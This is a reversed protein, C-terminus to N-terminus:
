ITIKNVNTSAYLDMISKHCTLIIVQRNKAFKDLAEIALIRRDDDFNVFTDDMVYPMPEARKEYEEILGLRMSFYLEEMTGRSMETVNKSNGSSDKIILEQTEAQMLVTPYQTNTIHSFVDKATKIVEPQRTDEYKSIAKGLINLAIQSKVWEGAAEKLLTKNLEYENQYRLLEENSSLNDIQNQLQGINQNFEDRQDTLETLKEDNVEIDAEILEPTVESINEIFKEFHEGDGVTTQINKTEEDIISTLENEKQLISDKNRLDEINEAGVSSIHDRIKKEKGNLSEKHKLIRSEFENIQGKISNKQNKIEKAETFLQTFITINTKINDSIKLNDVVTKVDNHLEEVEKITKQMRSLRGDYDDISSQDSKIRDISQIMRDFGTPSVEEFGLESLISEWESYSSNYNENFEDLQSRLREEVSDVFDISDGAKLKRGVVLGIVAILVSFGVLYWQSSFIGIIIGVMGLVAITMHSNKYYKPSIIEVTSKQSKNDLHQDLKIKTNNINKNIEELSTKLNNISDQQKHSMEHDRIKQESWNAGISRIEKKIKEKLNERATGVSEIDHCADSYSKSSTQLSIVKPELKILKENFSLSDRKSILIDVDAQKEDLNEEISDREGKLTTYIGLADEPFDQIDDLGSLDARANKLNIYNPFLKKRNELSYKLERLEIIERDYKKVEAELREKENKLGEFKSLGKQIERINSEREKIIQYIGAMEHKKGRPKFVDDGHDNFIKKIQTLSKGGLELGAGYIRNRIEDDNLSKIDQLENLSFAYVNEYFTRSIFGLLRNLEAQGTLERSDLQITVPGGLTGETRNITISEGSSLECILKGGYRGGHLAPYPNKNGRKAPFGFLIRRIFELFTTKGFENPGYVLNIGSTFGSIHIDNFIGFGDIHVERLQM